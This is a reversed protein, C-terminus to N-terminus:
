CSFDACVLSSRWLAFSPVSVVTGFIGSHKMTALTLLGWGSRGHNSALPNQMTTDYKGCKAVILGLKLATDGVVPAMRHKTDHKTLWLMANHARAIKQLEAYALDAWTQQTFLTGLTSYVAPKQTQRLAWEEVEADDSMKVHDLGKYQVEVKIMKKV